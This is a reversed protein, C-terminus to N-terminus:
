VPYLSELDPGAEIQVVTRDGSESLRRAIVCGTAGAGVLVIDFADNQRM